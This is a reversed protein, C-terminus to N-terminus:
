LIVRGPTVNHGEEVVRSSSGREGLIVKRLPNSRQIVGRLVRHVQFLLLTMSAEYYTYLTTIFHTIRLDFETLLTMSLWSPGYKFSPSWTWFTGGVLTMGFLVEPNADFVGFFEFNSVWKHFSYKVWLLLGGPFFMAFQLCELSSDAWQATSTVAFIYAHQNLHRRTRLPLFLLSASRAYLVTYQSLAAFSTFCWWFVYLM